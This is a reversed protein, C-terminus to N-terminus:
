FPYIPSTSVCSLRLSAITSLTPLSINTDNFAELRRTRLKWYGAWQSFDHLHEGDDLLGQSYLEFFQESSLWYLREFRRLMEDAVRLDDLIESITLTKAM